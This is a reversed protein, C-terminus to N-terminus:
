SEPLNMSEWGSVVPAPVVAQAPPAMNDREGSLPPGAEPSHALPSSCAAPVAGLVLALEKLSPGGSPAQTETGQSLQTSPPDLIDPSFCLPPPQALRPGVRGQGEFLVNPLSLQTRLRLPRGEASFREVFGEVAPGFLGTPSVPSDLFPVKDADKIETLTLWLHRKLVVLSALSRGIAQATAKTAHLALETASRLETLTASDLASEDTGASTQGPISTPSGHLTA